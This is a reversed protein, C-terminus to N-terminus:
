SLDRISGGHSFTLNVCCCLLLPLVITSVTCPPFCLLIFSLLLMFHWICCFLIYISFYQICHLISSIFLVVIHSTHIRHHTLSNAALLWGTHQRPGPCVSLWDPKFLTVFYHGTHLESTIQVIHLTCHTFYYLLTIYYTYMHLSDNATLSTHHTRTPEAHQKSQQEAM